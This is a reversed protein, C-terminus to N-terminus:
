KDGAGCSSGCSSPKPTPAPTPTPAPKEGGAGCSSGCPGSAAVVLQSSGFYSQASKGTVFNTVTEKWGNLTKVAQM